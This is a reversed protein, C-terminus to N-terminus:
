RSLLILREAGGPGLPRLACLTNIYERFFPFSVAWEIEVGGLCELLDPPATGHGAIERGERGKRLSEGGAAATIRRPGTM